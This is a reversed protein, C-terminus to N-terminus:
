FPKNMLDVALGKVALSIVAQKLSSIGNEIRYAEIKDYIAADLHPEFIVSKKKDM